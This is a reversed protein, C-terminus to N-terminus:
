RVRRELDAESISLGKFISNKIDEISGLGNIKLYRPALPANNYEYYSRLPNTQQMYVKLRDGVVKETDDPRQILPEGTLDDKGEVQPPQYILHYTRGSAPHIRRGTLRKIIEEDAVNIDIVADITSITQLAEAQEITRPFGDLLFGRQCDPQQLREKVLEITLADPVLQGNAVISKVQIGLPSEQQIAARFIDGTSIHPIQYKEAIFKAQTGKGVGPPGLLILRM